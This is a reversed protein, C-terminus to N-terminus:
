IVVVRTRYFQVKQQGLKMGLPVRSHQSPPGRGLVHELLKHLREAHPEMVVLYPRSRSADSTDYHTANNPAIVESQSM